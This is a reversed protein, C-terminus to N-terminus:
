NIHKEFFCLARNWDERSFYHLGERLYYGVTGDHYNEGVAAKKPAVLGVKGRKEWAVSAARAGDLEGQPNARPDGAASGVSLVRPAILGMLYQQDFPLEKEKGIYKQYKESFWYPRIEALIKIDECEENHSAYLAAGAVGSCNSHVFAFREDFAGAILATKGLRSHGLIALNKEDVDSRTFLYDAVRMAAWAWVMLKGTKGDKGFGLARANEDLIPTDPTVSEYHLCAFGWGRDIIEEAPLYKNPIEKDFSLFLVTKKKGAGMPLCVSFPFVVKGCDMEARLLFREIPAKGACFVKDADSGVLREVCVQKPAKPLFGYEEAQLVEKIKERDSVFDLAM